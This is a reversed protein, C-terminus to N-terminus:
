RGQLEGVCVRVVMAVEHLGGRWRGADGEVAMELPELEFLQGEVGGQAALKKKRM